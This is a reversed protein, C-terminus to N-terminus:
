LQLRIEGSHFQFIKGKQEIQIEGNELIDTVIGRLLNGKADIFVVKKNICNLSKRWLTYIEKYKRKKCYDFYKEINKVLSVLFLNLDSIKGTENIISTATNQIAKSFNKQNVNIGIGIIFINNKPKTEILIGAVKKNNLLIDNPWKIYLTHKSISDEKEIIKKISKYIGYSVAYILHIQDTNFFDIQKVITFTLNTGKESRWDRDFRGKGSTQYNTIILNDHPVSNQKAFKNTSKISNSYLIASIFHNGKLKNSILDPNLL